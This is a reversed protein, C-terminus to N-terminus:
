NLIEVRKMLEPKLIRETNTGLDIRLNVLAAPVLEAERLSSNMNELKKGGQHFLSFLMAENGLSQSIFYFLDSLKEKARFTAQLILGEPLRVRIVCFQYQRTAQQDLKERQARTLLMENIEVQERKLQNEKKVEEPKLIFFSSHLEPFRNVSTSAKYVRVDRNLALKVPSVSTLLDLATSLHELQKTLEDVMADPEKTAPEDSSITVDDPQKIAPEDSSITVDDPQKIADDQSDIVVDTKNDIQKNELITVDDPQKSADDQSDIVVVVDAKAVVDGEEAPKNLVYFMEENGQFERLQQVFGVASLFLEAGTVPFVKEKLAKSGCRISRYKEENPHELINKLCKNITEVCASLKDKEILGVSTGMLHTTLPSNTGLTHIMLCSAYLPEQLYMDQLTNQLHTLRQEYDVSNGVCNVLILLNM